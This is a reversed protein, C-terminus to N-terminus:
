SRFTGSFICGQMLNIKLKDTDEALKGEPPFSPLNFFTQAMNILDKVKTHAKNEACKENDSCNRGFVKVFDRNFIIKINITLNKPMVDVAHM